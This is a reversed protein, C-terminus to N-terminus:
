KEQEDSAGGSQCFRAPRTSELAGAEGTITQARDPLKAAEASLANKPKAQEARIAEARRRIWRLAEGIARQRAREEDSMTHGM